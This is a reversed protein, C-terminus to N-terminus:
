RRPSDQCNKNQKAAFKLYNEAVASSKWGGHRKINILDAGGDALLTASSRRFCHGMYSFPDVLKLFKAIMKPTNGLTNKGVVQSTCKGNKYYLFLRRHGAHPPRLAVYSRFIELFNVEYDDNNLVTFTRDVKNKTNNIRVILASGVDDIDDLTLNALEERRCAGSIGM